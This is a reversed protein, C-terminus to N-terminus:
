VWNCYGTFTFRFFIWHLVYLKIGHKLFDGKALEQFLNNCFFFMSVFLVSVQFCTFRAENLPTNGNRWGRAVSWLYVKHAVSLWHKYLTITIAKEWRVLIQPHLPNKIFLNGGARRWDERQGLIHQGLIHRVTVYLNDSIHCVHSNGTALKLKSGLLIGMGCNGFDQKDTSIVIYAICDTPLKCWRAFVVYLM